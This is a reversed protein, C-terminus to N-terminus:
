SLVPTADSTEHKGSPADGNMKSKDDNFKSGLPVAESFIDLSAGDGLEPLMHEHTRRIQQHGTSYVQYDVSDFM